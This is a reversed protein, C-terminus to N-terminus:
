FFVAREDVEPTNPEVQCIIMLRLSAKNNVEHLGFISASKSGIRRSDLDSMSM